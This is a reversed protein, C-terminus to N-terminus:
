ELMKIRLVHVFQKLEVIEKLISQMMDTLANARRETENRLQNMADLQEQQENVKAKTKALEDRLSQITPELALLACVSVHASHLAEAGQFSCGITHAPCRQPIKTCVRYHEACTRRTTHADCHPCNMPCDLCHAQFLAGDHGRQVLHGCGQCEVSYQDYTKRLVLDSPSEINEWAQQNDCIACDNNFEHVCDACQQHGCTGIMPRLCVNGCAGCALHAFEGAGLPKYGPHEPIWGEKQASM